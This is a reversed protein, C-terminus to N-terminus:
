ISTRLIVIFVLMPTIYCKKSFILMKPNTVTSNPQQMHAIIKSYFSLMHQLLVHKNTQISSVLSHHAIFKLLAPAFLCLRIAKQSMTYVHDGLKCILLCIDGLGVSVGTQLGWEKQPANLM